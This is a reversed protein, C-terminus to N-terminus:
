AARSIMKDVEGKVTKNVLLLFFGFLSTFSFFLLLAQENSLLEPQHTNALTKYFGFGRRLFFYLSIKSEVTTLKPKLAHLPPQIIEFSRTQISRSWKHKSSKGSRPELSQRLCSMCFNLTKAPHMLVSSFRHPCNFCQM